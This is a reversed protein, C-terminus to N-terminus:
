SIVGFGGFEDQYCHVAGASTDDDSGAIHIAPRDPGGGAVQVLLDASVGAAALREAVTVAAKNNGLAVAEDDGGCAEIAVSSAAAVEEDDTTKVEEDNDGHSIADATRTMDSLNEDVETQIDKEQEQLRELLSPIYSSTSTALGTVDSASRSESVSLTGTETDPTPAVTDPSQLSSVLDRGESAPRPLASTPVDILFIKADVSIDCISYISAIIM